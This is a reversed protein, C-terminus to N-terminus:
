NSKKESCYERVQNLYLRLHTQACYESTMGSGMISANCGDTLYGDVHSMDCECHIYEHLVLYLKQFMKLNEWDAVEIGIYKLIAPKGFSVCYALVGPTDKEVFYVDTSIMGRGSAQKFVEKEFQLVDGVPTHTCSFSVVLVIGALLAGNFISRIM